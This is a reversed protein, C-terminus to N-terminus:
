VSRDSNDSNRESEMTTTGSRKRWLTGAGALGAAGMTLFGMGWALQGGGFVDLVAGVALPGFFAAGFGLTSHVALAAGRCGRPASDGLVMIGYLVALMSVWTYPLGSSIGFIVALAGSILMVSIVVRKRGFLRALENGGISAPLGAVSILFAIQTPRLMLTGPPQLSQSFTLFAM